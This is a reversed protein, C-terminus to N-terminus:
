ASKAKVVTELVPDVLHRRWGRALRSEDHPLDSQVAGVLSVMEKKSSVVAPDIARDACRQGLDEWLAEILERDPEIRRRRRRKVPQELGAKTAEVIAEGYHRRIPRPMGRVRGLQDVSKVPRRALFVLIEDKLLARPPSDEEQAVKERWAALQRLIAEQRPRLTELGRMRIRQAGSELQYQAMDCLTELEERCWEANGAAEVREAVADRVRPLFRVDNAAYRIQAPSLPRHDWQSFKLGQPLEVECLAEVLRGLSCPYSMGAFAAAIQTDFVNAPPLGLHRAVPELDALGAHVIKEVRADAVLGWFPALDVDALADILTVRTATAVQVVCIKPFYSFEGIFESDYAFRGVATLEEILAAVGANSDVIDPENGPILHHDPIPAAVSDEEAHAQEHNRRRHPPRYQRWKSSPRTTSDEQGM